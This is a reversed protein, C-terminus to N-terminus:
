MGGIGFLLYTLDTFMDGQTPGNTLSYQFIRLVSIIMAIGLYRNNM